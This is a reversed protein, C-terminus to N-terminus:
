ELPSSTNKAVSSHCFLPRCFPRIDCISNETNYVIVTFLTLKLLHLCCIHNARFELVFRDHNSVTREGHLSIKCFQEQTHTATYSIGVDNSGASGSFVIWFCTREVCYWNRTNLFTSQKM